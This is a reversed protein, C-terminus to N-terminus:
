EGNRVRREGLGLSAVIGHFGVLALSQDVHDVFVLHSDLFSGATQLDVVGSGLVDDLGLACLCGGLWEAWLRGGLRNGGAGELALWGDITSFELTIDSTQRLGTGQILTSQLQM